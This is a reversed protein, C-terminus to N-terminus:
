SAEAPKPALRNTLRKVADSVTKIADRVPTRSTKPKAVAPNAVATESGDPYHKTTTGVHRTGGPEGGDYGADVVPRLLNDLRDVARNVRVDGWRRRDRTGIDRLPRTLPLNKQKILNHQYYAVAQDDGRAQYWEETNSVVRNETLAAEGSTWSYNPHDYSAGLLANVWSM